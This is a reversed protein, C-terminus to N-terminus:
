EDIDVHKDGSNNGSRIEMMESITVFRFGREQLVPLINALAKVTQERNGGGDHFLVVNGEKAGDLVFKTIKDVGPSKWDMTDLHWSWMIVKYGENVVADIMDDTYNGEVPRFLKTSQGTISFITDDTQKIEELLNPVNKKKHHSYTHNALEHGEEYMRLVVEPNKEANAGLIFFTAKADYRNLLDLIERTYKRHPGDDFTLAIVKEETNIDWLIQGSQEYYKRGRDAFTHELIVFLLVVFILLSIYKKM